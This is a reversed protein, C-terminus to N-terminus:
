LRLQVSSSSSSSANIGLMAILRDLAHVRDEFDDEQDWDFAPNEVFLRQEEFVLAKFAEFKERRKLEEINARSSSRLRNYNHIDVLCKELIRRLIAQERMSTARAAAERRAAERAVAERAAADEPTDVDMKASSSSSSSSSGGGGQDGMQAAKKLASDRRARLRAQLADLRENQAEDLERIEQNCQEVLDSDGAKRAEERLKLLDKKINDGRERDQSPTSSEPQSSEVVIGSFDLRRAAM